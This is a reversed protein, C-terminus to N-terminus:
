VSQLSGPALRMGSALLHQGKAENRPLAPRVKYRFHHPDGSVSDVWAMNAITKV